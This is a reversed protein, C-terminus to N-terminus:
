ERSGLRHISRRLEACTPKLEASPDASGSVSYRIPKLGLLDSPLKLEAGAKQLVLTRKRGLRGIFLGIELIVNDRPSPTDAGRSRTVDDPAAVAIAIDSLEVQEELDELTYHSAIFVDDDTWLTVDFPDGSLARRVAEAVALAEKSSIMFVRPRTNKPRVLRNRQVLRRTIETALVHWVQPHDNAIRIFHPETLRCVTTWQTAVVTASRTQTHDIAAMEGVCHGPGREAIRVGNVLIDVAGAVILFVDTDGDGQKILVSGESFELVKGADALQVAIDASGGVIKQERLATVLRRRGEVGDDFRGGM